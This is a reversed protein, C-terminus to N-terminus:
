KSTIQYHYHKNFKNYYVKLLLYYFIKFSIVFAHFDWQRRIPDIEKQELQSNQKFDNLVM